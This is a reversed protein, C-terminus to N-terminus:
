DLRIGAETVVGSWKAMQARLHVGFQQPSGGIAEVGQSRFTSRVGPLLLIRNVAANIRDIVSQPTRAPAVIGFWVSVEFDKVGSEAVTPLDPLLAFRRPSTVALARLKGAQVQPLVNPTNDFLAQVRGGVLDIVAPASGKYPVHVLDIGARAKLLEMSLHNSSGPGASAYVLDGPKSRALAILEAVSRVPVDNGVVLLNPTAACLIVPAFDRVTDYSLKAYLAPNVAFAFSAMLLTHGDPAATAVVQTGIQSGGGPRNEVLVGQGWAEQLKQALIRALQDNFGGPPYPVVVRVPRAPFVETQAFAPGAGLAAAGLWALARRRDCM